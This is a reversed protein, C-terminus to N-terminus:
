QLEWWNNLKITDIFIIRTLHWKNKLTTYEPTLNLPFNRGSHRPATYLRTCISLKVNLCIIYNLKLGHYVPIFAVSLSIYMELGVTTCLTDCEALICFWLFWYWNILFLIGKKECWRFQIYQVPESIKVNDNVAHNWFSYHVRLWAFVTHSPKTSM